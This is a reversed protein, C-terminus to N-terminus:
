AAVEQDSTSRLTRGELWELLKDEPYRIVRGVKVFPPGDGTSRYRTLTSPALGVIDAAEAERIYKPSDLLRPIEAM